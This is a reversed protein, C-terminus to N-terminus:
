VAKILFDLAALTESRNYSLSMVKQGLNKNSIGSIQQTLICFNEKQVTFVPNLHRASKKLTELRCLPVVVTTDLVDLLDAQVNLLFPYIEKSESNPNEYVDFQAM